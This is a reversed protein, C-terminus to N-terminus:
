STKASELSQLLYARAKQWDREVTRTSLGLEAATEQNSLGAFFRMEVTQALRTSHRGLEELAAELDLLGVDLAPDILYKKLAIADNADPQRKLARRKRAQDVLLRRIIRAALAKFHREDKPMFKKDSNALRLYAEHVLATTQLTLNQAESKNYFHATRKLEEYVHELLRDLNVDNLKFDPDPEGAATRTRNMM